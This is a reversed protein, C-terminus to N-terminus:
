VAGEGKATFDGVLKGRDLVLTRKGFEEVMSLNHTAVLVSAGTKNAQEFLDFVVRAMKADLNGTPEDAIILRPKHIFARALAVRQQEGGSLMPPYAVTKEEMGLMELLRTAAKARERSAVGRVELPLSVNELVTRHPLLKYDQFVVGIERRLRAIGAPRIQQLNRGAM